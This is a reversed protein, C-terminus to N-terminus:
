EGKGLWTIESFRPTSVGTLVLVDADSTASMKIIGNKELRTLSFSTVSSLTDNEEIGRIEHIHKRLYGGEIVPCLISLQDFLTQASLTKEQSNKFVREICYKLFPTPDPTMTRSRDCSHCWAFGLYCSWDEFQGWRTDNLGLRNGGIQKNLVTEAATWNGPADYIDQSLYWSIVNGIDHNENNDPKFIENCITFPLFIDGKGPDQTANPLEPNISVMNDKEIVLGIKQCERIIHKIFGSPNSSSRLPEPSLLKELSEISETQNRSLLLYRYLGRVRSPTAYIQGLLSMFGGGYM